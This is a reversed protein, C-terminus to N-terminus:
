WDNFRELEKELNELCEFQLPFNLYKKRGRMEQTSFPQLIGHPKIGKSILSKKSSIRLYLGELEVNVQITNISPGIKMSNLLTLKEKEILYYDIVWSYPASTYFNVKALTYVKNGFITCDAAQLTDIPIWHNNKLEQIIISEATKEFSYQNQSYLVLPIFFCGILFIKLKM